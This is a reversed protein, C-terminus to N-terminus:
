RSPGPWWRSRRRRPARGRRSSGARAGLQEARGHHGLVGHDARVGRELVALDAGPARTTRVWPSSATIPSPACPRGTRRGAGRCGARRRRCSRCTRPSWSSRSRRRRSPAAGTTRRHRRSRRPCWCRRRCSRRWSRRRRVLVAGLDALVGLGRGVVREDRRDLDAVAGAGAGARDYTPVHRRAREGTLAPGCRLRGPQACVLRAPVACASPQRPRTERIVARPNPVVSDLPASDHARGSRRGPAGARSRFGSSWRSSGSPRRAAPGM